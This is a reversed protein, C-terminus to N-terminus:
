DLCYKDGKSYKNFEEYSLFIESPALQKYQVIISFKSPEWMYQYSKLDIVTGELQCTKVTQTPTNNKTPVETKQCSTSLLLTLALTLTLLLKKM